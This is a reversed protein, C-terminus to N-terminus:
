PRIGVVSLMRGLDKPERRYSYFESPNCCTCPAGVCIRSPPVGAAALQRRNAEVLDLMIGRDLAGGEPFCGRFQRAVETGVEYCCGGIGPGIAAYMSAPDGDFDTSIREITRGVIGSATGRWGAHIAAVVRRSEEVVLIPLCDATRVGLLFGPRDTVLADGTGICGGTGRVVLASNSHAQRLTALRWGAPWPPSHRTGFGHEVWEIRDLPVARYNQGHDKLFM